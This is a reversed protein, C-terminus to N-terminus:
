LPGRREGPVVPRPAQRPALTVGDVVKWFVNKRVEKTVKGKKDRHRTVTEYKREAVGTEKHVRVTRVANWYYNRRGFM